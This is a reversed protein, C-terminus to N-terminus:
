KLQIVASCAAAVATWTSTGRLCFPHLSCGEGRHSLAQMKPENSLGTLSLQVNKALHLPQPAVLSLRDFIPMKSPVPDTQGLVEPLLPQRRGDMRRTLFSPHVIKWTTYSHPCLIPRCYTEKTKDCDVRKVSACISPWVSTCFPRSIGHM